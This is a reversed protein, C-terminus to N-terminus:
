AFEGARERWFEILMNLTDIEKKRQESIIEVQRRLLENKNQLREVEEVLAEIDDVANVLFEAAQPARARTKIPELNLM